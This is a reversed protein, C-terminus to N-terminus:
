AMIVRIKVETAFSNLGLHVQGFRPKFLYNQQAPVTNTWKYYLNYM